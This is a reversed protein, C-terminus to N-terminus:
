LALESYGAPFILVNDPKIDGHIIECKHLAQLGQVVDLLLHQVVQELVFNDRGSWIVTTGEVVFKTLTCDAHEVFSLPKIHGPIWGPNNGLEPNIDFGWAILRVINPPDRFIYTM